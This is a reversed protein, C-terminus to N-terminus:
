TFNYCEALQFSSSMTIARPGHLFAPPRLLSREDSAGSSPRALRLAFAHVQNPRTVSNPIAVGEFPDFGADGAFVHACAALSNGPTASSPPHPLYTVFGSLGTGLAVAIRIAPPLSRRSDMVPTPEPRSDSPNMTANSAVLGRPAFSGQRLKTEWWVLLVAQFLNGSRVVRRWAVVLGRGLRLHFRAHPQRRFDRLQPPFQTALGLQLRLEPKVDQIVPDIPEIHQLRGPLQHELVLARRSDVSHGERVDDLRGATDSAEQIFNLLLQPGFGIPRLRHLSHVYGLGIAFLTRQPNGRNAIAHHLHGHQQYQFRDELGVKEVRRIPEPGAARRM